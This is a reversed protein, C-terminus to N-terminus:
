LYTLSLFMESKERQNVHFFRNLHLYNTACQFCNLLVTFRINKRSFNRFKKWLLIDFTFTDGHYGSLMFKVKVELSVLFVYPIVEKDKQLLTSNLWLLTFTNFLTDYEKKKMSLVLRTMSRSHLLCILFCKRTEENWLMLRSWELIDLM